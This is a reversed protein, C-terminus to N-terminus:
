SQHGICVRCEDLKQSVTPATGFYRQCPLAPNSMRAVCTMERCLDQHLLALAYDLSEGNSMSTLRGSTNCTRRHTGGCSADGSSWPEGRMIAIRKRKAFCPAPPCRRRLFTIPQLALGPDQTCSMQCRRSSSASVAHKCRGWCDGYHFRAESSKSQLVNPQCIAMAVLIERSRASGWFPRRYAVAQRKAATAQAPSCFDDVLM